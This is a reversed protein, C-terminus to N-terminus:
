LAWGAPAPGYGQVLGQLPNGPTGSYLVSSNGFATQIYHELNAHIIRDFCSKADNSVIIGAQRLVRLLDDVLWSNLVVEIAQHYKRSGFQEPAIAKLLEAKTM